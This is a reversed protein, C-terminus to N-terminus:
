FKAVQILKFIYLLVIHIQCAISVTFKKRRWHVQLYWCFNPHGNHARTIIPRLARGFISCSTWYGNHLGRYQPSHLFTHVEDSPYNIPQRLPTADGTPVVFIHPLLTLFWPRNITLRLITYSAGSSMLKWPEQHRQPLRRPLQRSTWAAFLLDDPLWGDQHGWSLLTSGHTFIAM